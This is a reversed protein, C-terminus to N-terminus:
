SIEDFVQGFMYEGPQRQRRGELRSLIDLAFEAFGNHSWMLMVGCWEGYAMSGYLKIFHWKNDPGCFAVVGAGKENVVVDGSENRRIKLAAIPKAIPIDLSKAEEKNEPFPLMSIIGTMEQDLSCSLVTGGWLGTIPEAPILSPLISLNNVLSEDLKFFVSGCSFNAPLHAAVTNFQSLKALSEQASRATLSAKSEFAAFVHKAPIARKKGQASDDYTGDVWLVPANSADYILVDFHYLTHNSAMIDPIVYGSTVGFKRPLFTSLWNRLMAEGAVGHETQVPRSANYRISRNFEDLIERRANHFEKWGLIGYRGDQDQAM